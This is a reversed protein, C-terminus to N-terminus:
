WAPQYGPQPVGKGGWSNHFFVYNGDSLQMAPPGAEVNPNGGAAHLLLPLLLVRSNDTMAGAAALAHLGCNAIRPTYHVLHKRM